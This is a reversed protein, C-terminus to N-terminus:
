EFKLAKIPKIHSVVVTPVVLILTCIVVTAASLVGIALWNFEIPVHDVYYSSADLKVVHWQWQVYCLLLGLANGLVLGRGIIFVGYHLFIQRMMVNTAGVAKLIGITNTKEMILILLGSIMTFCCVAVMLGLIVWINLDLLNLWDFVSGYLEKISYVAYYCGNKDREVPKNDAVIDAVDEVKDFDNITIELLSCEDRGWGNLKNVSQRDAFVVNNDFQSMNSEYIGQILYRRMRVEDNEFFYAYTKDGCKLRLENAVQRSIVISNTAAEKGFDPVSGEVLNAKLFSKDYDEAVGKFSVGKFDEDTKIIGTKESVRQVKDVGPLKKFRNVLSDDAVVSLAKSTAMADSNVVQVHSGFGLVKGKIENKFGLVVAISVIMVALGIMIGVSALNVGLLSIRSSEGKTSYLRRAIFFSFSM